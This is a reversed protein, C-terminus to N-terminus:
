GGTEPCSDRNKRPFTTPVPQAIWNRPDERRRPSPIALARYRGQRGAEDIDIEWGKRALKHVLSRFRAENQDSEVLLEDSMTRPLYRPNVDRVIATDEDSASIRGQLRDEDHEPGTLFNRVQHSFVRTHDADIPTRAAFTIHRVGNSREIDILHSIGAISFWTCARNNGRKRGLVEQSSRSLGAYDAPPRERTTSGGWPHEVPEVIMLRPDTNRGFASHVFAPHAGDISNEESRAWNLPVEYNLHVIGWNERSKMAEDFWPFNDPIPPRREEPLDGLFVWIWGYRLRVPYCDVRARRPIRVGDGLAPIRTCRGSHDYEWGHYSCAIRGNEVAGLGLSGGRHACADAVCTVEDAAGRFLAFWQGLMKVRYPKGAKVDDETAAVYWNNILM